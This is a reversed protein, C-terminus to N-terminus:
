VTELSSHLLRSIHHRVVDQVLVASSLSPSHLSATKLTTKPALHDKYTVNKEIYNWHEIEQEQTEFPKMILAKEKAPCVDACNGCGTCDLVSVQIRYEYGKFQPGVAPKTTLTEPANKKEEEDLLFPRIAAHPCVFSCQNCQICKDIQWEPVTVAIGRKEFASTGAPFTGDEIGKFTSVPLNDGM